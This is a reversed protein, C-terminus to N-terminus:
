EGKNPNTVARHISSLKDEVTDFRRDIRRISTKYANRDEIHENMQERWRSEISEIYQKAMPILHKTIILYSGYFLLAFVVLAGGPGTLSQLIIEVTSPEM